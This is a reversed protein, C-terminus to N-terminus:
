RAMIPMIAKGDTHLFIQLIDRTAMKCLTYEADDRSLPWPRLVTQKHPSAPAQPLYYCHVSVIELKEELLV